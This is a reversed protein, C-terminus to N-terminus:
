RTMGLAAFSRVSTGFSNELRCAFDKAADLVYACNTM